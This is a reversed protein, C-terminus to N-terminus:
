MVRRVSALPVPGLQTNLTLKFTTPDITVSGVKSVLSTTMQEATGGVDAIAKLTYNGAPARTGVDTNGDWTFDQEGEQASLQVRRVLQGSSDTVVLLANSTGAPIEVAGQLSGTEGLAASSADALVEHGVLTSGGLVQSSRLSDSLTSLSGQMEQIGSVTGFQALQGLFQTPDTPKFPDQNRLQTIMLKLFEDSGLASTAAKSAASGTSTSSSGTLPDVAM